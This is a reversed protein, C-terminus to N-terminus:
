KHAPASPTPSSKFLDEMSRIPSFFYKTFPFLVPTVKPDSVLGTVHCVFIKSVPWLVTSVVPGVWTNRMLQATVYANVKQQLDVTGSYDLRMTPTNIVLSSTRGVGNTMYFDVTAETARSNGLGPSFANLLPSAFGFLPINWLLGDHLRGWGYGNWSQWTDSNGSTITVLATLRGELPNTKSGSLGLALEHIDLNTAEVTFKFDCGYGVPRFDFYARGKASGGYCGSVVNSLALSQGTWHITGTLNTSLLRSWRFPAGRIVEFTMDTGDLDRGTKVDRLPVQGHVRVVPPSLYQYPEIVEATKPGIARPIIMQDATSYGNTFYIWRTNFDLTLSDATMTQSGQARFGQLHLFSLVRNSCLVDADVSEVTQGRVAFNTLSLHGTVTTTDLTKLNGAAHLNLALPETLEVLDFGQAAKTDGLWPRVTRGDLTGRVAVRFNKTVASIQGDLGLRSRDQAIELGSLTCISDGYAFHTRAFDVTSGHVITKPIALDGDASFVALLDDLSDPLGNTWPPLTLYGGVQLRPPGDTWAVEDFLRRIKEPFLPAFLHPDFNSTNTFTVERTMVNLAAAADFRGSDFSVSLREVQLDPASWLGRCNISQANIGDSQLAGARVIWGLRFPLANTWFDLAPDSNTPADVPATISVAAQVNSASLWPSTVAPVRANMRLKFSHIDQADGYLMLSLQPQGTFRVRALQDAFDKLPQSLAGREAPKRGTVIKWQAIQGVHAVQGSLHLQTGAFDAQLTDLTWTQHAPFSVESQINFVTLSNTPSVPLVFKGHRLVFGDLLFRGHLLAHYDLRLQVESATLVPQFPGTEGGLRVNDAILGHILRFRMRSFEVQVGRDRFSATLRNKLFDPLGIVNLWALALLALVIVAWLTYRCWRLTTCCKRWLGAM